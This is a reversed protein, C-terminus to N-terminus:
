VSAEASWIARPPGFTGYGGQDSRRITASMVQSIGWSRYWKRRNQFDKTGTIATAHALLSGVAGYGAPWGWLPWTYSGGRRWGGACGRTMTRDPGTFVPHRSLGLVALAEVGPNTRKPNLTKNTPDAALLAYNRDDVVDWMLSPLDSAYSWPGLLGNILQEETAEELVERMMALFRQQGATFYLDSPKAVVGKSSDLSGEAVLASPFSSGPQSSRSYELYRRIDDPKFKADDAARGDFDPSLAPSRRWMPFTRLAQQVIRELTFEGDVVAHAVVDGTWWLRPQEAEAAFLVQVGLAALFGLPNVGELGSLHTTGM